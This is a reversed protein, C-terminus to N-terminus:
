TVATVWVLRILRFKNRLSVLKMHLVDGARRL